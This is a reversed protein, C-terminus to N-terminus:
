ITPLLTSSLATSKYTRSRANKLVCGFVSFNNSTKNFDYSFSEFDLKEISPKKAGEIKQWM